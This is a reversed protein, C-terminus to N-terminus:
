PRAGYLAPIEQRIARFFAPQKETLFFNYNIAGAIAIDLKPYYRVSAHAGNAAGGLGYWDVEGDSGRHVEWAFAFRGRQGDALTAPTTFLARTEPRFADSAFVAHAFRALDESTALLGGSPYYDSSDRWITSMRMAGFLNSHFRPRCPNPASADDLTVSDLRIPSTLTERLAEGYPKGAINEAVVGLLNYGFSSYTVQAGPAHVLPDDAFLPLADALDAYRKTNNAEAMNGFNYHRIGSTHTSLQRLTIPQKKVPFGPVYTQVPADFDIPRAESLRVLLAATFGKAVSGIRIQAATTMPNRGDARGIAESWILRGESVIAATVGAGNDEALARALLVRAQAEREGGVIREGACAASSWEGRIVAPESACATAAAGFLAAM